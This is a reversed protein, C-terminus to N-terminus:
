GFFRARLGRKAPAADSYSIAGIHGTIEIEGKAIDLAGVHMGEGEVTMEGCDTQVIVCHEDFSEVETVGAISAQRRALVSVTHKKSQQIDKDAM